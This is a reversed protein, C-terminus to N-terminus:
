KNKKLMSDPCDNQLFKDLADAASLGGTDIGLQDVINFHDSSYPVSPDYFVVHLAEHVITMWQVEPTASAWLAGLFVISKGDMNTGNATFALLKTSLIEGVNDELVVGEPLRLNSGPPMISEGLQEFSLGLLAPNASIDNWYALSETAALNIAGMLGEGYVTGDAGIFGFNSFFEKCHKHKKFFAALRSAMSSRKANPRGAVSGGEDGGLLEGVHGPGFAGAISAGSASVSGTSTGAPVSMTFGTGMDELGLADIRNIADGRVYSYRNWSQPDVVHGTPRYPDAQSFRGLTPAYDRNVAYDLGTEGDREYNTLHHKEQSGSEGLDGGFPLHGQRGIINGSADVMLRVSLRDSLFYSTVGGEVKAVM